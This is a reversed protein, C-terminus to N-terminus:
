PAHSLAADRNKHDKGSDACTASRLRHHCPLLDRPPCGGGQSRRRPSTVANMSSTWSPFRTLRSPRSMPMPTPFATLEAVALM